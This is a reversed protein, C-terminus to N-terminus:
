TQGTNYETHIQFQKEHLITTKDHATNGGRVWQKSTNNEVTTLSSAHCHKNPTPLKPTHNLAKCSIDKYHHFQKKKQRTIKKSTFKIQTHPARRGMQTESTDCEM